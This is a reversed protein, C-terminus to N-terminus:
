VNSLKKLILVAILILWLVPDSLLESGVGAIQQKITPASDLWLKAEATRRKPYGPQSKWDDAIMKYEASTFGDPIMSTILEDLDRNEFGRNGYQYAFSLIAIKGGMPANEFYPKNQFYPLMNRIYDKCRFEAENYSIIETPSNALNGFGISYRPSGDPLKGDPYAVYENLKRNEQSSIFEFIENIQQETM